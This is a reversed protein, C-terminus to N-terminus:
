NSFTIDCATQVAQSDSNTSSPMQGTSATEQMDKALASIQSSAVQSETAAAQLASIYTTAAGAASPDAVFTNYAAKVAQCGPDDSANNAQAASTAGTTAGTAASTTSGSGDGTTAGLTVTVTPTVNANIDNKAHDAVAFFVASMVIAWAVTLVLGTIAKNRGLKKGPGTEVIAMISIVLNIVGWGGFIGLWLSATALGSNGQNPAPYGPGYGGSGFDTQPMYGPQGGPYGQGYGQQPQQNFQQQPYEQPGSQGPQGYGPAGAYNPQQPVQQGQPAGWGQGSNQPAGGPQGWTGLQQGQSQQGWADPQGQQQPPAGFPQNPEQYSM